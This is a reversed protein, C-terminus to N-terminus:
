GHNRDSSSSSSHARSGGAAGNQRGPIKECWRVGMRVEGLAQCPGLSIIATVGFTMLRPFRPPTQFKCYCQVDDPYGHRCAETSSVLWLSPTPASPNAPVAVNAHFTLPVFTLQQMDLASGCTSSGAKLSDRIDYFRASAAQAAEFNSGRRNASINPV